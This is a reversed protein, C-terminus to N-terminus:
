LLRDKKFQCVAIKLCLICNLSQLCLICSQQHIRPAGQICIVPWASLCSHSGVKLLGEQFMIEIVEKLIPLLGSHHIGIGRKLMPLIAAVQLASWCILLQSHRCGSHNTRVCRQLRPLM